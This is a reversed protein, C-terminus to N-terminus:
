WLFLIDIAEYGLWILPDLFPHWGVEFVTLLSEASQPFPVDLTKKV